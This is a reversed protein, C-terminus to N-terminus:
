ISLSSLTRNSKMKKVEVLLGTHIPDKLLGVIAKAVESPELLLDSAEGPFNTTRLPTKTRQPIVAHIRLHSKEEALAQTFNIVAAKAASYIGYNKRGRTYASSALNIIHGGLKLQAKQCAIVLGTFNIQMLEEIEELTHLELPKVRLAGASNILGDIPGIQEFAKTLTEPKRLDVGTKRSLKVAEAGEKELLECVASGIGGFGGLVAFKKGILSANGALHTKRRLRLLQEALFLDLETTIKLNQEDGEVVGVKQGLRLVLRCDDSANFIGDELAKEHATKIISYRFTQPTQGRLFEERLPIDRIKEGGPAHVLTDPSSICTDVAGWEIAGRVNNELIAETVFPRVADHIIVVDPPTKFGQLGLYSSAQRTAGGIIVRARPGVEEEARSLWQSHCVLVIEDIWSADLFTKLTHLFIKKGALHHFQKPAESGFRVGEGAMLLIAGVRFNDIM